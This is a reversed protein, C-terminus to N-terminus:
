ARSGRQNVWSPVAAALERRVLTNQDTQHVQTTMVREGLESGPEADGDTGGM